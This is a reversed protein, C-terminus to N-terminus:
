PIRKRQELKLRINRYLKFSLAFVVAQIKTRLYYANELAFFRDLHKAILERNYQGLVATTMYLRAFYDKLIRKQKNPIGKVDIEKVLQTCTSSIDVIHKSKDTEQTISGGRILYNYFEFDIYDVRLAELFVRPTWEEDEHLLKKKFFLGNSILFDREYLRLWVAALYRSNKIAEVLYETGNTFGEAIGGALVLKTKGSEVQFANASLVQLRKDEAFRFLVEISNPNIWDDSDVFLIYKGKAVSLGKNRADSLGGNVQHIVKIRKDFQAFADCIDGSNDPSGDDVLIIEINTHTQAILSSVSKDLYDEVCYVPVVISVDPLKKEGLM